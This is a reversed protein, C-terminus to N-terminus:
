KAEFLLSLRELDVLAAVALFVIDSIRNAWTRQPEFIATGLTKLIELFLAMGAARVGASHFLELSEDSILKLASAFHQPDM